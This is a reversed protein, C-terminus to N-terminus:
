RSLLANLILQSSRAWSFKSIQKNGLEVRTSKNTDKLGMIVADKIHEASNPDFYYPAEGGVEPLSSTNSCFVVTNCAFAELLQLGFGEYLSPNIFGESGSYLAPLDVDDVFGIFLVKSAVPKDKWETELREYFFKKSGGLVLNLEPMEASILSFAQLLKELNKHPHANGVYFLYPKSVGYKQLVSLQEGFPIPMFSSEVGCAATILKDAPIKFNNLIDMKVFESVTFIKQARHICSYFSLLAAARKILYIPYPLTTARGTKFKIVTLDHITVCFKGFYLLPVNFNPAFLIDLKEAAFIRPLLLQESFTNWKINAKVKKFNAPLQVQDYYEDLLFVVFTTNSDMKAFNAIVNRIYRGIGTENWMRADIGIVMLQNYVLNAIICLFFM